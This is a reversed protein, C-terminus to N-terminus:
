CTVVPKVETSDDFWKRYMEIVPEIFTEVPRGGVVHCVPNGKLFDKVALFDSWGLINEDYVTNTARIKRAHKTGNCIERIVAFNEDEYIKRSFDQAHDTPKPWRGNKPDYGPAIWERLHSAVMLVFLIDETAKEPDSSYKKFRHEIMNFLDRASEIDFVKPMATSCVVM